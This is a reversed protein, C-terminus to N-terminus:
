NEKFHQKLLTLAARLRTKITGLPIGLMKSMEDQTFGQFYALEILIKYEDKLQHVVKKLGIDDFKTISVGGFLENSDDIENNKSNNQFAKSRRVDISANRAINLMWTFLKGKSSDYQEIQKWIKVFVEQLVDEALVADNVVNLVISNLAGAYKDYLYSFAKQNREKLLFVLETETYTITSQM